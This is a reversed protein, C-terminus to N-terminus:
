PEPFPAPSSFVRGKYQCQVPWTEMVRNGPIAVCEEFTTVTPEPQNTAILGSVIAGVLLVIAAILAGAFGIKNQM